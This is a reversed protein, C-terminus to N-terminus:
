FARAFLSASMANTAQSFTYFSLHSPSFALSSCPSLCMTSCAPINMCAAMTGDSLRYCSQPRLLSLVILHIKNQSTEPRVHQIAYCMLITTSRGSRWLSQSIKGNKDKKDSWIFEQWKKM